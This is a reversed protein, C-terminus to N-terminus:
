SLHRSCLIISLEVSSTSTPTNADSSSVIDGGGSGPELGTTTHHERLQESVPLQRLLSILWSNVKSPLQSTRFSEPMQEPFHSHLTFTIEEENCHWDRSLVDMLNNSKGAFWQSYGKIDAQMFISAYKRAADVRTTAQIPDGDPEVFNSKQMWGEATTSNTMSLACDGLSLMRQHHRDM